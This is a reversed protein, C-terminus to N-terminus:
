HRGSHRYDQRHKLTVFMNGTVAVTGATVSAVGFEGTGDFTVGDDVTASSLTRRSYTVNTPGDDVTADIIGDEIHIRTIFAAM